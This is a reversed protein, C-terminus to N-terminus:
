ESAAAASAICSESLKWELLPEEFHWDACSPPSRRGDQGSNQNLAMDNRWKLEEVAESGDKV